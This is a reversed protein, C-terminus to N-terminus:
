QVCFTYKSNRQLKQGFCKENYSSSLSMIFIHMPKRTFYGKNKDSKLLVQYKEVSKQFIKL